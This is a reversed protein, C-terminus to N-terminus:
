FAPFCQTFPLFHQDGAIEGKGLFTKLVFAKLLSVERKQKSEEIQQERQMQIAERHERRRQMAKIRLEEKDKERRQNAEIRERVEKSVLKKSEKSQEIMRQEQYQRDKERQIQAQVYVVASCPQSSTSLKQYFDFDFFYCLLTLFYM